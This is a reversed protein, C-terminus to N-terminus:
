PSGDIAAGASGRGTPPSLHRGGNGFVTGDAKIATPPPGAPPRKEAAIARGASWTGGQLLQSLTLTAVGLKERTAERLRDMLAVTLARWEVILESAVEHVTVPDLPVKPRI